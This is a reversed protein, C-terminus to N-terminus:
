VQDWGKLAPNDATFPNAGVVLPHTKAKTLEDRIALAEAKQLSLTELTGRMDAEYSRLTRTMEQREKRYTQNLEEAAALDITLRAVEQQLDLIVQAHEDCATLEDLRLELLIIEDELDQARGAHFSASFSEDEIRQQAVSLEYEGWSVSSELDTIQSRAANRQNMVKVLAALLAATIATFLITSLM